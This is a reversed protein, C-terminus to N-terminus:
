VCGGCCGWSVNENFIEQIEHAYPRLEEPLADASIEWRGTAVYENWDSDFSVSGGSTWFSDYLGKKLQGNVFDSPVDGWGSNFAELKGNVRKGNFVYEKGDYRLVLIGSCLNPYEGTYEVFEINM